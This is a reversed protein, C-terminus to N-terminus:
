KCKATMVGIHERGKVPNSTDRANFYLRLQGEFCVLNCAYVFQNMWRADANLEPCIQPTLLTKVYEFKEGDSSRLLMIASSSKGEADKFIGNQLGVYCDNLEYVKICGCCLNLYSSDADPSLLPKKRAAFGSTLEDSEAYSIYTPECFKCDKIFTQGASFYLRNRGNMKVYFPNSIATGRKDHMYDRDDGVVRVPKSWTILDKSKTVYIESFWKGGLLSLAKVALPQVREYYLYYEGDVPNVDARMARSLIKRRNQWNYGDQSSAHEVGFLTHYFMHWLGDPSSAPTLVSPDAAILSLGSRRLVPNYEYLAFIASNLQEFSLDLM